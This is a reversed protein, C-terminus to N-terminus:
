MGRAHKIWDVFGIGNCIRCGVADCNKCIYLGKTELYKFLGDINKFGIGDCENCFGDNINWVYGYPFRKSLNKLGSGGCVSCQFLKLGKFIEPRENLLNKALLHLNNTRQIQQNNLDM